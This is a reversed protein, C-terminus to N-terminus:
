NEGPQNPQYMDMEGAAHVDFKKSGGKGEITGSDPVYKIYEGLLYGPNIAGLQQCPIM